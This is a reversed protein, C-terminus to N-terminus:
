QAVQRERKAEDRLNVALQECADASRMTKGSLEPSRLAPDTGLVCGELLRRENRRGDVLHLLREVVELAEEVVLLKGRENVCTQGVGLELRDMREEVAIAADPTQQ